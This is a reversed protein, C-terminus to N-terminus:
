KKSQELKIIENVIEQYENGVAYELQIELESIRMKIERNAEERRATYHEYSKHLFDKHKDLDLIVDNVVWSSQYQNIKEIDLLGKDKLGKVIRTIVSTSVGMIEAFYRYNPIFDNPANMLLTHMYFENATLRRMTDMNAVMKKPSDLFNKILFNKGKKNIVKSM